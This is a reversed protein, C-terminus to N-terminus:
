NQRIVDIQWTVKCDPIGSVVEGRLLNSNILTLTIDSTAGDASLHFTFNGNGDGVFTQGYDPNLITFGDATQTLEVLMDPLPISFAVGSCVSSGGSPYVMQWTGSEPLVVQTAEELEAATLPTPIEVM